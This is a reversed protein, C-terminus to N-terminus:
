ASAMFPSAVHESSGTMSMHKYFVMGLYKYGEKHVLPVGGVRLEPPNPGSSNFHVMESKATNITLNDRQAYVHLRDLM